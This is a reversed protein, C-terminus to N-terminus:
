LQFSVSRVRIDDKTDLAFALVKAVAEVKLKPFDPNDRGEMHPTDTNGPKLNIIWAGRPRVSCFRDLQHKLKAYTPFPFNQSQTYDAATSSVNVIIKNTDFGWQEYIAKLLEFQSGDTWTTANNVFIDSLKSLEVIKDRDEKKGIDFGNTRSFGQCEYGRSELFEYIGKGIGYTHGTISAKM